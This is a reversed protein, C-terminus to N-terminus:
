IEKLLLFNVLAQPLCEINEITKYFELGNRVRQGIIKRIEIRALKKLSCPGSRMRLKFETWEGIPEESGREIVAEIFYEIDQCVIDGHPVGYAVLLPFWFHFSSPLHGTWSDLLYFPSPWWYALLQRVMHVCKTNAAMGLADPV